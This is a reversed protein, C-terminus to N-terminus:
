EGKKRQVYNKAKEEYQPSRMGVTKAEAMAEELSLGGDIARYAMWLTGVRNASGCHFLVPREVTSLIERAQDFVEDTLEDAGAFPLHIYELGAEQAAAKEDFDKLESDPRLNLVTKIGKEKAIKLDEANPQGAFVFGQYTHVNRIDGCQYEAIEDTMLEAPMDSAAQEKEEPKKAEGSEDGPAGGTKEAQAEDTGKDEGKEKTECAALMAVLAITIWFRATM